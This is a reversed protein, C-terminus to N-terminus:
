LDLLKQITHYRSSINKMVWNYRDYSLSQPTNIKTLDKIEESLAELNLPTLKKVMHQKYKNDLKGLAGIFQFLHIRRDQEKRTVRLHHFGKSLYRQFTEKDWQKVKRISKDFGLSTGNDYLPSLTAEGKPNFKVGWNEQHRDTNGILADFLAM